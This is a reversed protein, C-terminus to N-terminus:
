FSLAQNIASRNVTVGYQAQLRAVLQDLLDDAMGSALAEQTQDPVAEPGASAPAFVETVRFLIQAGDQPAAVLGTGGQQVSFAASAGARGLDVDDSERKLGRKTQLELDLEDAIEAFPKGDALQKRLEEARAALRGSAEQQKWDAIVRDRVEDLARDRAPTIGEVEYFLFGSTGISIPPNEVGVDTEFAERLLAPGEPLSVESGDPARGQRDVAEVTVVRLKLRAAAERMSEGGARADEYSDHVDLLVRSAEDLALDRRIENEVEALPRVVAPTIETVRVLLHGFSGRVADSVEGEDLAFAVEAIAPDAVRDKQFTGLEVDRMTKGEAAVVEEFTAGGAIRERAAKAAEESSFVLQEIRRREPTTYRAINKDYYDKVAEDTIAGEDAIDAPELKVYAIKRYEPAAYDAKNAEFFSKLQEATPEDIPEVVSRPITIFEVTRDEGRYLAVARLYTDPTKMGDSVAEVIQQRIAVQERNRLYDEPRMGVQRLVYDFQQRNFRGDPGQFAPDEATLQALRDRSLGLNMESAQEDLVAGAVLQALVQQDIGLATAQERTLRTRLQQSMVNLQRDYALRYENISVETGGVALVNNGVGGLFQGSIGWVAFSLVLLGLLLKAVWTGAAKRLSDLM